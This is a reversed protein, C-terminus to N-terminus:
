EATNAVSNIINVIEYNFEIEMAWGSTIILAVCILIMCFM